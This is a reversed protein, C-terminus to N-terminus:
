VHLAPGDEGYLPDRHFWPQSAISKLKAEEGPTGYCMDWSKGRPYAGVMAFMGEPGGRDEDLRRHGVGAPVIILDGKEVTPEFRDPNTEGGFCLKARGSIVGLVEHTISHYHTTRYMGYTWQPEVSGAAEFLMSLESASANFAKHYIMLPKSEVSTNPIRQWAAIQRVTVQVDRLPNLPMATKKHRGGSYVLTHEKTKLFLFVEDRM